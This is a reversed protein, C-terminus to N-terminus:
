FGNWDVTGLAHLHSAISEVTSALDVSSPYIGVGCLKSLAKLQESRSDLESSFATFTAHRRLAEQTIVFADSSQRLLSTQRLSSWGKDSLFLNALELNARAAASTEKLLDMWRHAAEPESDWPALIDVIARAELPGKGALDNLVVQMALSAEEKLLLQNFTRKFDIHTRSMDGFFSANIHLACGTGLLTPLFISLVGKEPKDSLRVGITVIVDKLEPWKGPLELVAERFPPPAEAIKITKTWLWYKQSAQGNGDAIVVKRGGHRSDPLNRFRRRLERRSTGSDVVLATAKELFLITSAEMGELKEQVLRRATPGKLPFRIVTAFGRKELDELPQNAASPSVPFPLLYPSLYRVEQALWSEGRQQLSLRFKRLLRDDWDVLPLGGFPSHVSDEGRFLAVIPPTLQAIVAPSFAFCFGDFSPSEASLRSYIEPSNTIELVSRFGIGKNGISEQPDKDSQGLQSLSTFNSLSFPRGDNAVYLTGHEDENPMLIIEIRSSGNPAAETDLLADHANQILEVLFRGHYQHEVQETLSHLSKYNTTGEALEYLFTRIKSNTSEIIHSGANEV